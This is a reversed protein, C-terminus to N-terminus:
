DGKRKLLMLRKYFRPSRINPITKMYQDLMTREKDDAERWRNWYVTARIEPPMGGLELWWSREPINQLKGRRRHRSRLRTKEEVPLDKLFVNLDDQTKEKDYVKQSITDFDRSVVYRETAAKVKAEKAIKLQEYNISPTISLMRRIFPQKQILEETVLQKEREPMEDLLTKWAYGTLSTYINGSTFFQELAYRTREPSLGLPRALKVFAPNTFRTYEETKEVDPGRWIDRNRWFDKNHTYGLLADFSPPLDQTPLIPIAAQIAMQIEDTDVEEGLYRGMLSEFITSVVRQGQDKAIKMYWHRKNGDKDTFSFPTTIIWNNVKERDSIREWCESNSFKNALYLGSALTGVQAVKYSFIGPHQAAARAIGRTGQMAANLYPVGADVAKAVNGGQFFDLYSRAIWTAVEPLKKNRLARQRLMLRTLVESTEGFWGLVNQVTGLSGKVSAQGQHTLFEMGGGEAIYSNWAGKRLITDPLVKIIDRAMQGAAIPATASYEQTTLWIHAIDRPFNTLAFEPNLGTAMPRLVKAGSLWGIFNSLQANVVPDRMVWEEAMETPMLIPKTQGDIVVNIKQYGAPAEQYIPKGAKTKRVVKALKVVENDPKVLGLQYLATNARNRFIRQETRTIVQEMLFRADTELLAESGEKLSQIGSDPVTIKRGGFTYTQPPDIHQLFLRRSYPGKSVLNQYQENTIIGENLLKNLQNKMTAFYINARENLKGYLDKPLSDLWQQHEVQGLGKPHAIKKYQEIAIIRRSTILRNLYEGEVKSLGGFIQDSEKKIEQIAKSRAGAILDHRMIVKKGEDGMGYLKKKLNGSVDVVAKKLGHYVARANVERLAKSAKASENYMAEVETAGKPMIPKGLEAYGPRSKFFKRTMRIAEEQIAKEGKMTTHLWEHFANHVNFADASDKVFDLENAKAWTDHIREGRNTVGFKASGKGGTAYPATERTLLNASWRGSKSPSKGFEKTMFAAAESINQVHYKPISEITEIWGSNTELFEGAKTMQTPTPKVVTPKGKWPTYRYVKLVKAYTKPLFHKAISGAGKLIPGAGLIAVTELDELLLERTQENTALKAFRNREEPDVYKLYPVFSQLVGFAGYINPHETFFPREEYKPTKEELPGIYQLQSKPEEMGLTKSREGALKVAEELTNAMGVAKIKGARFLEVAEDETKQIGNILTPINYFKNDLGVTITRESSFTGDPNLVRKGRYTPDIGYKTQGNM